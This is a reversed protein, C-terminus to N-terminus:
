GAKRRPAGAGPAKAASKQRQAGSNVNAAAPAVKGGSVGASMRLAALLDNPRSAVPAKRKPLSRGQLKAKVLEGLAAEYRDRFEAPDFDGKKTTIIHKALDLMEGKISLDPVSEFIKAAPRVEYDFNLTTAILGKGHARILVTRARRFLTVKAIAAVKAEKM